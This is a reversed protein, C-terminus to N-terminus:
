IKNEIVGKIRMIDIVHGKFHLTNGNSVLEWLISTKGDILM